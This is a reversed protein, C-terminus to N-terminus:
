VFGAPDRSLDSSRNQIPIPVPIPVPYQVTSGPAWRHTRATAVNLTMTPPAWLQSEEKKKVQWNFRFIRAHAASEAGSGPTDEMSNSQLM